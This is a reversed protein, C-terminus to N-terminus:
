YPVTLAAVPVLAAMLTHGATTPHIGDAAVAYNATGNSLWFVEDTPDQVAAAIDMIGTLVPNAVAGATGPAVPNGGSDQPGNARIWANLSIIAGNGTVGGYVVGSKGWAASAPTQNAKTAFNDTSTTRPTITTQYIQRVGYASAQTWIKQLSGAITQWSQGGAVDNCGFACIVTDTGIFQQPCHRSPATLYGSALGGYAGLRAFGMTPALARYCWGMGGPGDLAGWVISDGIVVVNPAVTRRPRTLGEMRQPGFGVSFTGAPITAMSYDTGFGCLANIGETPWVAGAGGSVYTHVKVTTGAPIIVGMPDTYLSGGPDIVGTSQGSFFTPLWTTGGDISFGMKVSIQNSGNSFKYANQFMWRVSHCAQRTTWTTEYTTSNGTTANGSLAYGGLGFTSNGVISWPSQVAAPLPKLTGIYGPLGAVKSVPIAM